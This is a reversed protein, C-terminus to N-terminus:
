EEAEAVSATQAILQLYPRGPGLLAELRARRDGLPEDRIDVGADRLIDFAIVVAPRQGAARRADRRAVRLREQLAGFNFRGTSDATVIEGDILTDVPLDEGAQVLEPFAPGLDTLHRRLVQVACGPAHWLLGRFGDLKPEYRWQDGRPLRREL